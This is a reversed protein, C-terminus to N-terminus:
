CKVAPIMMEARGSQTIPTRLNLKVLLQTSVFKDCMPNLKSQNKTRYNLINISQLFTYLGSYLESGGTLSHETSRIDLCSFYLM